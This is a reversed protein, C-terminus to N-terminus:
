DGDKIDFYIYILQLILIVLGIFMILAYTRSSDWKNM